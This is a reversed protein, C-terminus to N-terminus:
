EADEGCLPEVYLAVQEGPERTVAALRFSRVRRRRGDARRRQAPTVAEENCSRPHPLVVFARADILASTLRYAARRLNSQDANADGTIFRSVERTRKM